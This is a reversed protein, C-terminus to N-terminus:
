EEGEPEPELGALIRSVVPACAQGGTRLGGIAHSVMCAFAVRRAGFAGPDRPERWGIFWASNFAKSKDIEATGTKGYTRCGLDGKDRFAAPATGVEPVAKMGDRLEALLAPDLGLPEAEPVPVSQGNWSEILHPRVRRGTAIASAVTAMHLPSVSVSQGIGNLAVVWMLLNEVSDPNSRPLDIERLANKPRQAYLVDAGVDDQRRFLRAEPPLNWALDMRARDDVGLLRATELVGTTPPRVPVLAPADSLRRAYDAIKERDLLVAMRAFWINISFQVAEHLGFLPDAPV